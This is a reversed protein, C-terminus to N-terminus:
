GHIMGAMVDRGLKDTGLWHRNSPPELPELLSINTPRYPIPPYVASAGELKKFDVNQLEAPWQGIRAGVLYSRFIPFYSNDKYSLFYPKDNAIFDAFLATALLLGVVYFGYLAIHDRKFRKWVDSWLGGPEPSLNTEGSREMAQANISLASM